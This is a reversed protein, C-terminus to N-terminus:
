NGVNLQPVSWLWVSKDRGERGSRQDTGSRSRGICKWGDFRYTNGSHMDNDQYSMAFPVGLDRLFTERWVRLAVRCLGSRIACLRALEITNDRGLPLGHGGGITANMLSTTVTVAVIEDGHFLGLSWERTKPRECPGMKHGWEVLCANADELSIAGFVSLPILPKQVRRM